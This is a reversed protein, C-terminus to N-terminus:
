SGPVDLLPTPLKNHGQLAQFPWSSFGEMMEYGTLRPGWSEPVGM